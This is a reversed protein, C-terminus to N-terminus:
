DPSMRYRRVPLPPVPARGYHRNWFRWQRPTFVGSPADDLMKSIREDGIVRRTLQIDALSGHCLAHALFHREDAMVDDPEKFWVVRKAVDKLQDMEAPSM